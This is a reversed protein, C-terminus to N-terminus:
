TKYIELYVCDISEIKGIGSTAGMVHAQELMQFLSLDWKETKSGDAM